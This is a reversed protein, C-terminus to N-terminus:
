TELISHGHVFYNRLKKRAKFGEEAILDGAFLIADHDSQGAMKIVKSFLGPIVEDDSDCFFIYKGKAQNLGFNRASSAGENEKHFVIIKPHDEKYKDAIEGSRDTSGDDILIIECDSIGDTSLLSDLCKSLYREANYLPIVVSLCTQKQDGAM